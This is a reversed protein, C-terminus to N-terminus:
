SSATDNEIINLLKNFVTEEDFNENFVNLSRNSIISYNPVIVKKIWDIIPELNDSDINVGMRHLEILNWSEGKLSNIIPLGYSLYEILKNPWGQPSKKKYLMLGIHSRKLENDLEDKTLWGRFFVNQNNQISNTFFSKNPGEGCVTIHHEINNETLLESIVNILSLDYTNGLTGAFILKLPFINSTLDDPKPSAHYQTLPLINPQIDRNPTAWNVYKPSVGIVRTAKSFILNKQIYLPMFLVKGVIPKIFIDPWLDRVDVIVPINHKNGFKVAIYTMYITPYSCIILDPIKAIEMRNKLSRGLFFHNILRKFSRNKKYGIKSELLEFGEPTENKKLFIKRQHEFDTTFFTLKYGLNSLKFFWHSMRHPKNGQTPLPEGVNILWINKCRM